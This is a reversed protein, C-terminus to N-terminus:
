YVSELSDDNREVGLLGSPSIGRSVGRGIADIAQWSGSVGSDRQGARVAGDILEEEGRHAPGSVQLAPAVVIAEIVATAAPNVAALLVVLSLDPVHRMRGLDAIRSAPEHWSGIRPGLVEGRADVDVVRVISPEAM